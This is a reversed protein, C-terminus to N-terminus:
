DQLMGRSKSNLVLQLSLPKAVREMCSSTRLEGVQNLSSPDLGHSLTELISSKWLGLGNHRRNILVTNLFLIIGAVMLLAPLIVFTWDVVIFAQPAYATGNITRTSNSSLAYKTLSAAVHELSQQLGLETITAQLPVPHDHTKLRSWLGPVRGATIMSSQFKFSESIPDSQGRVTCFAFESSNKAGNSIIQGPFSPSPGPNAKWRLSPSVDDQNSSLFMEGYDPASVNHPLTGGSVKLEYTQACISIASQTARELHIIQSLDSVQDIQVHDPLSFEAHALVLVPNNIGMFTQNLAPGRFGRHIGLIPRISAM